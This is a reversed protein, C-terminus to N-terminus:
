IYSKYYKNKYSICTMVCIMGGDMGDVMGRFLGLVMCIGLESTSEEKPRKHLTITCPKFDKRYKMPQNNMFNTMNPIINCMNPDIIFVQPEYRLEM